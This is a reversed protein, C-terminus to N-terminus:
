GLQILKTTHHLHQKPRTSARPTTTFETPQKVGEALRFRIKRGMDFANSSDPVKVFLIFNTYFSFTLKIFTQWKLARVYAAQELVGCIYISFMEIMMFRYGPAFWFM